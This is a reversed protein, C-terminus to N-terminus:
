LGFQQSVHLQSGAVIAIVGQGLSCYCGCRCTVFWEVHTMVATVTGTIHGVVIGVFVHNALHIGGLRAAPKCGFAYFHQLTYFQSSGICPMAIAVQSLQTGSLMLAYGVSQSGVVLLQQHLGNLYFGFLMFGFSLM